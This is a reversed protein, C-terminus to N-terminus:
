VLNKHKTNGSVDVQITVIVECPHVPGGPEFEELELHSNKPKLTEDHIGAANAPGIDCRRNKRKTNTANGSDDEQVEPTKQTTMKKGPINQAFAQGELKVCYANLLCRTNTATVPRRRRIVAVEGDAIDDGTVLEIEPSSVWEPGLRQTSLTELDGQTELCGRRRGEVVDATSANM